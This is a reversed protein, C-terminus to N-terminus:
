YVDGLARWMGSSGKNGQAKVAYLASDARALSLTTTPITELMRERVRPPADALSGLLLRLM